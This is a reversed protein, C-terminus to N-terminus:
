RAAPMEVAGVAYAVAASATLLDAMSQIRTYRANALDREATLLEVITSLGQKYTDLTSAYAEETAALLAEAYEYKSRTAAFEHYARWVEAIVGLEGTQLSAVAAARDAEAQRLRNLRQFGRFLDWTLAIQGTYQPQLPKQTPPGDFQFNWMQEGYNGLAAVTPYFDARARDVGGERAKLSAAEAALDPRRRVADTILQDVQNGLSAPVRQSQLSEVEFPANAAVGIALALNAQGERVFLRANALDFQSQAVRERALLLAPQTALGRDVRTQVADDNTKALDLNQEAATVGATAAALAYFARETDFVVTQLERNFAFNAAALQQRATEDEAGRRGFDLLTYTLQLVPEAYWRKLVGTQGPLEELEREYGAPASGTLRPYYAARSAGYAAAAARARQWAVRTAPNNTLSIDILAALGYVPAATTPPPHRSQPIREPAHEAPPITYAEAPPSWPQNAAPPAYRDPAMEPTSAVQACGALAALVWAGSGVARCVWFPVSLFGSPHDHRSGSSMAPTRDSGSGGPGQGM